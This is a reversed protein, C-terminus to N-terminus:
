VGGVMKGEQNLALMTSIEGGWAEDENANSRHEERFWIDVTLQTWHVYAPMHMYTHTCIIM